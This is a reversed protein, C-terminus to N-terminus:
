RKGCMGVLDRWDLIKIDEVPVQRKEKVVFVKQCPISNVKERFKELDKRDWKGWKVEGAVLPARERGHTIIFDIEPDFSYEKKGELIEAFLDGIFNQVSLQLMKQINANLGTLPIDQEEITHRDALYYFLGFIPSKLAYKKKKKEGYIGIEEVLDMAVLNALFPHISRSDDKEIVKKNSLIHAIDTPNWYGAGLERIIAEYNKTLERNEEQFTEGLLRPVANKFHTIAHYLDHTIDQYSFQPILWPDRIFSAYEVAHEKKEAVAQLTECPSLLGLKYEALLGLMPSSTGFFKHVTSVVSGVLIVKGGPHVTALEDFFMHPLRQYEDIVITKGNTLLDKTLSLFAQMDDIRSQPTGDCVITRDRRVLFYVDWPVFRRLM